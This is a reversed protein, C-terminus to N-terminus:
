VVNVFCARSIRTLVRYVVLPNLRELTEAHLSSVSKTVAVSSALQDEERRTMDHIQRLRNKTIQQIAQIVADGANTTEYTRALLRELDEIGAESLDPGAKEETTTSYSKRAIPTRDKFWGRSGRLFL